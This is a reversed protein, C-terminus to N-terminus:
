INEGKQMEHFKRLLGVRSETGTKEYISAIYKQLLRRSM